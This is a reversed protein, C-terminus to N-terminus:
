FGKKEFRELIDPIIPHRLVDSKDFKCIALNRLDSLNDMCFRLGNKEGIDSQTVDGVMIAKSRNGMRTLFLKVQKITSNQTEDMIMITDDYTHGRLLEVPYLHISGYHILQETKDTGLFHKFYEVYPLMYPAIKESVNGPMFGLENDCGVISRSVLIKHIKGQILHQCALGVSLFTKGVGAVGEGIIVDHDAIARLFDFQNDTKPKFDNFYLGAQQVVKNKKSSM